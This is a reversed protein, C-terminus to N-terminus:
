PEAGRKTIRPFMAVAIEVIQGEADVLPLMLREYTAIWWNEVFRFSGYTADRRDLVERYAPEAFTRFLRPMEDLYRGALDEGYIRSLEVGVARYRIRSMGPEVEAFIMHSLFPTLETPAFREVPPPRRKDARAEEWLLLIDRLEGRQIGSHEISIGM